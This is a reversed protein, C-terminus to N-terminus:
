YLNGDQGKWGKPSEDFRSEDKFEIKAGPEIYQKDKIEQNSVTTSYYRSASCGPKVAGAENPKCELNAGKPFSVAADFYFEVASHGAGEVDLRWFRSVDFKEVVADADFKQKVRNEFVKRADAAKPECSFLCFAEARGISLATALLAAALIHSKSM